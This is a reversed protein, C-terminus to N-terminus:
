VERQYPNQVREWVCLRGSVSDSFNGENLSKKIGETFYIEGLKFRSNM